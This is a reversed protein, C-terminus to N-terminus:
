NFIYRLGIQAQWRSGIGKSEFFSSDLAKTGVSTRTQDVNPFTFLPNKDKDYGSYTILASRNIGRYVGWKSNIMNGFNFIDASLQITNRKGKVNVYFDQKISLDLQGRSPTVAGNREAYQGRRSNLYADQKIYNDLNTWQQAATLTESGVKIDVLKIDSASKPIFILDNGAGGSGDGNMDGSYTYSFPNGTQYEYFLGVTTKMAKLYEKSYTLGAIFRDKVLFNSNALVVANPDGSVFRDRWISQAISGGDNVSKADSRTYAVSAFFNNSFSKELKATVFYSYGQNTNKMLIADSINSYIRNANSTKGTESNVNYFIPRNDAGAAAVTSNPLNVNQHYVANLDKTYAGELTAVIGAPLQFDVALNTRWIQPFKFNDATVALNYNANAAAGVPRYANVDASFPRDKPNNSSTSGFLLGNNSAQNSIWVFPVRGTFIGSGGRIQIKKDGNVDYNFGVRPSWMLQTKQVQSTNIKIGDRFSLASAATNEAIDANIVPMDIRLGYTLNFKSSVEYKDQGYLGFQAAKIYAFPFEGTPLASYQIRYQLANSVGSNASAYFDDLSNFQFGGYYNPAFGNKFSYFENYTGFSYSHKGKFIDINDSIQFVDTNLLNNASFPEYGFATYAQGSGNGIDVTPFPTTNGLPTERFDRFGTYGIQFKNSINGGFTSNLEAIVSNLNNNIRYFSSLFPLVNLGPARGGSLSGSSSAPLDRLSKLLNYKVALKHNNSLNVDIRANIKDSNSLLKYGEYPGPNYNYKSILFDSLKDLDAKSVNSQNGGLSSGKASFTSGPDNRREQEASVFFFVKDKIIPGGIRFGSNRVSFKQAVPDLESKEGMVNKGVYSLNRGFNYISGRFENDGSKTVLNVGAGTFSGERVDYPAINVSIQEIADLSIPQANTQGGVAGSLGFANNFAAGDVTINNYNSSRGGFSPAGNFTNSSGQPTLRTIDNFSRSLTPLAQIQEKVVGTAAGTRDSSFISSKDAKVVVENLTTGEEILKLEVNAPSGLNAIVGDQIAEKYGIFTASLKYPGGVRVAPFFYKGANNSVTGYKTGSPVHIAVITAGPLTEGKSGIVTGNISATSLGQAFGQFAMFFGVLLGLAGQLFTSKRMMNKNLKLNNSTFRMLHHKNIKICLEVNKKGFLIPLEIILINM